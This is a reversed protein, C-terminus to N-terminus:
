SEFFLPNGIFEMLCTQRPTATAPASAPPPAVATALASGDVEGPVSEAADDDLGERLAVPGVRDRALTACGAAAAGASLPDSPLPVGLAAAGFFALPERLEPRLRDAALSRLTGTVAGSAPWLMTVAGGAGAGATTTVSEMAASADTWGAATVATSGSIETGSVTEAAGTDSM